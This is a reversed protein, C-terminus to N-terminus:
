KNRAESHIVEAYQYLVKEQECTEVAVPRVKRVRAIADTATLGKKIWYAAAMTGTRGSGGECHMLVRADPPAAELLANFDRLQELELSPPHFDQISIRHRSWGALAAANVDYRPPQDSDDLLSVLISFGQDRLCALEKDSPNSGGLLFPEHIWWTGM